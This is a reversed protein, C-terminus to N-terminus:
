VPLAQQEPRNPMQAVTGKQTVALLRHRAQILVGDCRQQMKKVEEPSLGFEMEAFDVLTVIQTRFEILIDEFLREVKDRKVLFGRAEKAKDYEFIAAAEKKVADTSMGRTTHEDDDDENRFLMAMQEAASDAAAKEAQEEEKRLMKWAYVESLQFEYAQGNTGRKLVPMGKELYKTVISESVGLAKACQARNVTEDPIGKPLPYRLLAGELDFDV